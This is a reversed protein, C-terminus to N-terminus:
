SYVDLAVAQAQQRFKVRVQGGHRILGRGLHLLIQRRIQAPSTVRDGAPM